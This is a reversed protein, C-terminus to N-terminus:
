KPAKYIGFRAFMAMQVLAAALGLANPVWILPDGMVLTGYTTWSAANFLTALSIAFPLARTSKEKLVTKITALPSAMLIVALVDGVIGIYPVVTETDGMIAVATITSILAGSGALLGVPIKEAYRLYIATYVLGFAAGSLNPLMVPFDDILHGYWGWIVCNTFLSLPPLISLVGVSKDKIIQRSATAGAIQLSLFFSPGAVQLFSLMASPITFGAATTVTSAAISGSSACLSMPVFTSVGFAVSSPITITNMNTDSAVGDRNKKEDVHNYPLIHFLRKRQDIASSFEKTPSHVSSLVGYHANIFCRGVVGGSRGVVCSFMSMM